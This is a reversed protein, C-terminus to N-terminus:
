RQWGRVVAMAAMTAMALWRVVAAAMAMAAAVVGPLSRRLQRRGLRQRLRELRTAARASGLQPVVRAAAARYAARAPGHLWFWRGHRWLWAARALGRRGLRQGLRATAGSGGGTGDSGRRGPRASGATHKQCEKSM